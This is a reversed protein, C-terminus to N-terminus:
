QRRLSVEKIWIGKPEYTYLSLGKAGAPVEIDVSIEAWTRPYVEKRKVRDAVTILESQIPSLSFSFKDGNDITLVLSAGKGTENHYRVTARYTRDESNKIPWSAHGGWVMEFYDNAWGNKESFQTPSTAEGEHALLRVPGWTADLDIPPAVLDPRAVTAAFAAYEEAFGEVQEQNVNALNHRQEPDALLDYLEHETETRRVYLSHGNRMSGPWPSFEYGQKFTYIMRSVGAGEEDELLPLLSRGDLQEPIPLDVLQLLTPVLDIHAAPTDFVKGNAPHNGPMRIGFPVRVGGEDVQGKTGKLGMRYRDGNPGNDTSFVVVTNDLEGAKELRDLLQGIRDDVSEIMAYIGTNYDTLGRKKVNDWYKDAVQVPTHPAQYSLMCFFPYPSERLMFHSATDTLIQTLDGNFPVLENKENQLEGNFYDNFHGLTFGLFQEFGQSGPDYPATAGNHWKGFLGTRYEAHRLYEPITMIGDDMTEHRRTVFVAGTRPAYLGSLFSARTPACVPSVYFRSFQASSRLLADMNPTQISDNGHLSLDGVGQDDTLIFLINPLRPEEGVGQSESGRVVQSNSETVLQSEQARDCTCLFPLLLLPLLRLYSQM